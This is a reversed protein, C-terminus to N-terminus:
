GRFVLRGLGTWFLLTGLLSKRCGDTREGYFNRYKGDPMQCTVITNTRVFEPDGVRYRSKAAIRVIDGRDLQRVEVVRALHRRADGGYPQKYEFNYVRGVKAESLTSQM